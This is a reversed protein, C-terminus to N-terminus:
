IQSIHLDNDFLMLKLLKPGSSMYTCSM